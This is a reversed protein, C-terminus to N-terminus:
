KRMVVAVVYDRENSLSVSFDEKGLIYPKGLLDRLVEIDKLKIDRIGIGLAKLYAEKVAFNGAVISPKYKRIEFMENEKKSFFRRLFGPKEKIIRKFRPIYVLDIGIM